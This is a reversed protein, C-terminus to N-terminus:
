DQYITMKPEVTSGGIHFHDERSLKKIDVNVRCSSLDNQKFSSKHETSYYNGEGGIVVNSKRNPEGV